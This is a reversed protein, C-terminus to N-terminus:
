YGRRGEMLFYEQRMFGGKIGILLGLGDQIAKEGPYIWFM